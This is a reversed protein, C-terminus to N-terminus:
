IQLEQMQQLLNKVAKARHSISNKVEASLEAASCNKEPVYFIPDYGFGNNGRSETLIKGHWLGTSILPIPSKEAQIFVMVCVFFAMRDQVNKLNELLKQNNLFDKNEANNSSEVNAYRSSFVGPDGNLAPVCLGSDDAIAPLGSIKAAHRAKHLANELFTNFPEDAEPIQLDGQPIIEHGLPLFLASLEKIKKSNNSALIIKM